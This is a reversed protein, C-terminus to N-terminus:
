MSNEYTRLHIKFVTFALQNLFLSHIKNCNKLQTRILYKLLYHIRKYYFILDELEFELENELQPM